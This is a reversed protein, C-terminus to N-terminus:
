PEEMWEVVRAFLTAEDSIVEDPPLPNTYVQRTRDGLSLVALVLRSGDDFPFAQRV